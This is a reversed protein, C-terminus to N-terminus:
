GTSAALAYVSGNETSAYLLQQGNVIAALPSAYVPGDLKSIWSRALRPASKTTLAASSVANTLQNDHGYSLWEANEAARAPAAFALAAAVGAVWVLPRM